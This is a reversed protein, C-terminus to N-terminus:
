IITDIIINDTLTYLLKLTKNFHNEEFLIYNNDLTTLYLIPINKDSFLTSIRAVMGTDNIYEGTNMLQIINYKKMYVNENIYPEIVYYYDDSIIIMKDGNNNNHYHFIQPKDYLILKPLIYALNEDSIYKLSICYIYNKLVYIELNM